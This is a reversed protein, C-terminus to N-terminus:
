GIVQKLSEYRSMSCMKMIIKFACAVSNFEGEFDPPQHLWQM